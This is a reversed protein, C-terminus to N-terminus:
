NAPKPDPALAFVLFLFIMAITGNAQWFNITDTTTALYSHFFRDVSLFILVPVIYAAWKGWFIAAAPALFLAPLYHYVWGLPGCLPVLVFLAAPFAITRWATGATRYKKVLYALATLFIAPMTIKIWLPEVVQYQPPYPILGYITDLNNSFQIQALFAELGYVPSTVVVVASIKRVQELFVWHMESGAVAFSLALFIAMIAIYWGLQRHQKNLVYILALAAPYIKIASALALAVLAVKRNGNNLQDLWLLLLFTILIAPQNNSFTSLGFVSLRLLVLMMLMLVALPIVKGMIRWALFISVPILPTQLIYTLRFFIIPDLHAPFLSLFAAWIPPYVFPYVSDGSYGIEDFALQWSEITGSMFLNEQAAYVLDFRGIDFFYGAFYLATMDPPSHNWFQQIIQLTWLGAIITAIFIDRSSKNIHSM